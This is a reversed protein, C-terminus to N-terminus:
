GSVRVGKIALYLGSALLAIFNAGLFGATIAEHGLAPFFDRAVVVLAVLMSAFVGWGAIPRPLRRTLYFGWFFAANSLSGAILALHFSTYDSTASIAAASLASSQLSGGAWDPHSAFEAGNMASVAGTLGLVAAGLGVALAWSALQVVNKRLIFFMGLAIQCQVCFVLLSLYARSRGAQELALMNQATASVDANLNIDIDAGVFMANVVGLALIVLLGAGTLRATSQLTKHETEGM